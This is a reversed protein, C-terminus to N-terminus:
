KNNVWLYVAAASLSAVAVSAAIQLTKNTKFSLLRRKEFAVPKRRAYKRNVYERMSKEPKFIVRSHAPVTMEEGTQANKSTKEQMWKLRFTGLGSVSVQGDQLLGEEIVAILTKLFQDSYTETHETKQAIDSILQQLTIKDTM